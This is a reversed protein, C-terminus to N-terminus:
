RPRVIVFRLSSDGVETCTVTSDGVETTRGAECTRRGGETGGASFTASGGASANELRFRDPVKDLVPGSVPFPLENFADGSVSIECRRETADTSCSSSWSSTHCATLGVAVTGLALLSGATRSRM